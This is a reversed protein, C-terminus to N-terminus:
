VAVADERGFLGALSDLHICFLGKGEWHVRTLLLSVPVPRGDVVLRLTYYTQLEGQSLIANNHIWLTLGELTEVQVPRGPTGRYAALDPEYTHVTRRGTATVVSDPFLMGNYDFVDEGKSLEVVQGNQRLEAEIRSQSSFHLTKGAILEVTMEM